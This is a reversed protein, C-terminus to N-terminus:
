LGEYTPVMGYKRYYGLRVSRFAPPSLQDGCRDLQRGRSQPNFDQLRFLGRSLIEALQNAPHSRVEQYNHGKTLDQLIVKKLNGPPPGEVDM